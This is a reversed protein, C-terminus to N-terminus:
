IVSNPNNPNIEKLRVTETKFCVQSPVHPQVRKIFMNGANVFKKNRVALLGSM